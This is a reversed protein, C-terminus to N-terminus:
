SNAILEDQEWYSVGSIIGVVGAEWIKRFVEWRREYLFLKSSIM